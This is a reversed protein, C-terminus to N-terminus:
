RGAKEGTPAPINALRNLLKDMAEVGDEVAAREDELLPIEQLMRQLNKKGEILQGESDAKPRYFSCKACAMRHACQDFFDYTCYGHGLDYYKWPEGTMAAGNKIADQDLLVEITRVNREFYGAKEYAKAVKTPSLKAYHQTSSLLRHGLWEQLDFLSLPEKANFLQTAITSRARHSTINGRADARPVGAKRCLLPILTTNIYTAGLGRGRFSFLLHVVENTKDDLVAPQQSPRVREWNAVAEGVVRDVAKTFATGTKHVPIDLWCVKDASLPEEEGSVPVAERQWRVCGVRLRKIEDSRLGAFLWVISLARTLETPYFPQRGQMGVQYNAAPFDSEALNLGAWLLKAWIDDAIIRPDPGILAQISRPTALCRYPDFRRAFWGWDQGDRFFTRVCSLLKAKAGAKLPRGIPHAKSNMLLGQHVWDGIKMRDVAAVFDAVVERTWEVPDTRDPHATAVWRGAKILNRFSSQRGKPRLTSTKLWRQCWYRWRDPVGELKDRYVGGQAHKIVKELTQEIYGLQALVRSLAFLQDMLHANVNSQRVALLRETSLENPYPSRQALLLLCLASTFRGAVRQPTYGWRALEGCVQSVAEDVVVQGFVRRALPLLYAESLLRLDTVDTLLYSFIVLFLRCAKSKHYRQRFAPFGPGILAIWDAKTWAWYTNQRRQMEELLFAAGDTLEQRDVGAVRWARVVPVLLRYLPHSIALTTSEGQEFLQPSTKRRLILPQIALREADTLSPNRDYASADIPWVWRTASPPQLGAIM